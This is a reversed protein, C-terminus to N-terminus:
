AESIKKLRVELINKSYKKDIIKVRTPLPVGKSYKKGQANVSIKLVNELKLKIDKEKIGPLGARVLLHDREDFIDILPEKPEAEEITIKRDRYPLKGVVEGIAKEAKEPEQSWLAIMWKGEKKKREIEITIGMDIQKSALDGAIKRYVKADLEQVLSGFERMEKSVM